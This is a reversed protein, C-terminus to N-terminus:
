LSARINETVCRIAGCAIEQSDRFVRTSWTGSVCYKELSYEGQNRPFTIKEGRLRGQPDTVVQGLVETHITTYQDKCDSSTIMIKHTKSALSNTINVRAQLQTDDYGFYIHGWAENNENSMLHSWGFFNSEPNKRLVAEIERPDNVYPPQDIEEQLSLEHAFDLDGHSGGEEGQQECAALLSLVFPITIRTLCNKM